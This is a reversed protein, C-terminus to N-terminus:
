LGTRLLLSAAEKIKMCLHINEYQKVIEPTGDNSGDTIFIIKLKDM